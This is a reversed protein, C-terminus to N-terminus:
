APNIIQFIITVRSDVNMLLDRVQQANFSFPASIYIYKLNNFGKIHDLDLSYKFDDKNQINIRILEIKNFEANYTKLLNFSQVDSLVLELPEKGYTNIIRNNAIYITSNLDELLHIFRDTDIADNKLQNVLLDKNDTLHYINHQAKLQMSFIFISLLLTKFLTKKVNNYLESKM